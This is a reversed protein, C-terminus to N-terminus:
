YINLLVNPDPCNALDKERDNLSTVGRFDGSNGQMDKILQYHLHPAYDGNVSADGLYGVVSGKKIVDGVQIKDLSVLSLHGYLAYFTVDKIQHKLIITPGYDGLNTNNKFSHITGDLAALVPTNVACWLDLGLHINREELKNETYFHTSRSYIDRTENYGGYAISANSQKLIGNIYGEFANANTIDFENLATNTKSLDLSTYSDRDTVGDIIHIAEESFEHLIDELYSKM